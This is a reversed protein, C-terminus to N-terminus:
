TRLIPEANERALHWMDKVAEPIQEERLFM